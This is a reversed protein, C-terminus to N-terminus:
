DGSRYRSLIRSRLDATAAAVDTGSVLRAQGALRVLLRATVGPDSASFVVTRGEDGVSIEEVPYYDAVWAAAPSLTIEARVDDVGPTYHVEAPPQEEPPEFRDDLVAADRIRDIRFLREGGAKRCHGAVYWNGLTTYVRWPEIIRTSTAGSGLAPYTIDVAFGDAAARRLPGVLEPEPGFDIEVAGSADDGPMLVRRIKDVASELDASGAGSAIVASGAALLKLGEPATLRVPRAFYDAMDVYIGDEEVSVDILDTPGYGPLGCVFVLNLDKILENEGSYGFREVVDAPMAGPNAILWPVVALIRSLRSATRASSM